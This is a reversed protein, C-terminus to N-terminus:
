KGSPIDDIVKTMSASTDFLVLVKSLIRTEEWTQKAPLLFVGALIVYRGARLNGLLIAWWPGVSRSDKAYMWIFYVLGALLVAGLILLWLWSPFDHGRVTLPESLRRWVLEQYTSTNNAENM